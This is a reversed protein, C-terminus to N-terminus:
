DAYFPGAQFHEQILADVTGDAKLAALAEDMTAQLETADQRLGAGVGNGITVEDGVFVIRGDSGDVIPQLYSGDAIIVDLNGAMLDAISQDPTEFTLITNDGAFNEEAYAAQITSGQAGIRLGSPDSMDLEEGEAAIYRSPDPPYYDETFSITEMREETISMGAMIVDYNGAQLNPIISDWDNQVFECTIGAQECMANGLDIEFGALEGSEDIYNWPAYAGETGIRVTDQAHSAGALALAATAVAAVLPTRIM